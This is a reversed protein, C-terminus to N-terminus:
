FKLIKFSLLILIIGCFREQNFEFFNKFKYGIFVGVSSLCFSTLGIMISAILVNTNLVALSVGAILADISTAISLIFLKKVSLIDNESNKTYNDKSSNLDFSKYFMSFGLIFLLSFGIIHSYNSVFYYNFIHGFTYGLITILFQIFGFFSAIKLVTVFSIKQLLTGNSISAGFADIALSISIIFISFINM